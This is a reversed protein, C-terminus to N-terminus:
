SPEEAATQEAAQARRDRLHQRAVAVFSEAHDGHVASNNRSHIRRRFLVEPVVHEVVDLARARAWWGVWDANPGSAFPGLRDIVARRLLAASSIAASQATRPARTGPAPPHEPDAFEDFMTFVAGRTPDVAFAALQRELKTPLWLDDADLLAVFPADVAAIGVNRSPGIGAHPRRLVTIRADIADALTATADTSGDDVVVIERPPVTQDLASHLAAEVFAEADFATMVLAVDDTM